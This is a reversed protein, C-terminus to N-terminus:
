KGKPNKKGWKWEKKGMGIKKGKRKKKADRATGKLMFAIRSQQSSGPAGQTGPTSCGSVGM